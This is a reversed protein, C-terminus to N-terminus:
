GYIKQYLYKVVDDNGANVALALPLNGKGTRAKLNAGNQVLMNVLLLNNLQVALHLPTIGDLDSVNVNAGHGILITAIDLHELSFALLLPTSGDNAQYNVDIEYSDLVKKLREVDGSYVIAHLINEGDDNVLSIDAGNRLFYEYATSKSDSISYLLLTDNGDDIFRDDISYKGRNQDLFEIDNKCIADKVKEKFNM